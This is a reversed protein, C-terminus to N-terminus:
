KQNKHFWIMFYLYELLWSMWVFVTFIFDNPFSCFSIVSKDIQEVDNIFWVPLIPKVEYDVANEASIVENQVLALTVYISYLVPSITHYKNDVVMFINDYIFLLGYAM